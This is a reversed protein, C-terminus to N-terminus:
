ATRRVSRLDVVPATLEAATRAPQTAAFPRTSWDRRETRALTGGCRPCDGEALGRIGGYEIHCHDCKFM